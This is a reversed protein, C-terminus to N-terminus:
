QTLISFKGSEIIDAIHALEYVSELIDISIEVESDQSLGVLIYGDMMGSIVVPVKITDNDYTSESVYVFFKDTFEIADDEGLKLNDYSRKITSHLKSELERMSKMVTEIHTM